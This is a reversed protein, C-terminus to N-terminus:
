KDGSILDLADQLGEIYSEKKEVELVMQRSGSVSSANLKKNKLYGLKAGELIIKEKIKSINTDM